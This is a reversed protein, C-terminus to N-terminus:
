QLIGLKELTNKINEATIPKAIHDNMGVNLSNHIDETFANATMAIIPISKANPHSSQRIAKTADYGNMVPMQIDMFILDFENEQSQEFLEFGCKGNPASIIKAGMKQLLKTAVLTNVPHDEVLLINRNALNIDTIKIPSCKNTQETHHSKEFSIHLTFLTGKGQESEINIAGGQLEVLAKVIALGLGTGEINKITENQERQFPEFIKPLLEKSIGMGTDQIEFRFFVQNKKRTDKQFVRFFIKGKKPTFKLANGLLNNLIRKLCSIDGIIHEDQINQIEFIFEQQKQIVIGKFANAINSCETIISFPEKSLTINGSELRSMELIDNILSLLHESSSKIVTLSESIQEQNEKDELALNAMGIIANMPTRIDHSMSALFSNKAKNAQQALMLSKRLMDTREEEIKQIATIDATGVCFTMTNEDFLFVRSRKYRITNNHKVRFFIDFFGENNCREIINEISIAKKYNERDEELIFHELAFLVDNNFNGSFAEIPITSKIEESEFHLYKGTKYNIRAISDFHQDTILSFFTDYIYEKTIDQIKIKAYVEFTTPNKMLEINIQVWISENQETEVTLFIKHEDKASQLLQDLFNITLTEQILEQHAKNPCFKILQSSLTDLDVISNRITTFKSKLRTIKHENFSYIFSLLTTSEEAELLKLEKIYHEEAKKQTDINISTGIVSMPFGDNDLAVSFVLQHWTFENNHKNRFRIEANILTDGRAIRHFIRKFYEIDDPHILNKEFFCEPTNPFITDTFFCFEPNNEISLVRTELDYNLISVGTQATAVSFRKELQKLENINESTGIAVLNNNHNIATYRIKRWEEEGKNNIIKVNTSVETQGYIISEHLNILDKQSTPAINLFRILIETFNNYTQKQNTPSIINVTGKDYFPHYEWFTMGTQNLATTVLKFKNDTNNYELEPSLTNDKNAVQEINYYISHIKNEILSFICTAKNSTHPFLIELLISSHTSDLFLVKIEEYSFSHMFFINQEECFIELEQANQLTYTKNKTNITLNKQCLSFAEEMANKKLILDTFSVVIDSHYQEKELTNM